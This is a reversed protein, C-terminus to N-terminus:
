RGVWWALGLFVTVIVGGVVALINLVRRAAKEERELDERSARAVAAYAERDGEPPRYRDIEYLTM